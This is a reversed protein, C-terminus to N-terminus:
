GKTDPGGDDANTADSSASSTPAVLAAVAADEESSTDPPNGSDQSSSGRDHRTSGDSPFLGKLFQPTQIDSPKVALVRASVAKFSGSASNILGTAADSSVLDKLFQPTQVDSPKVASVRASVSKLGGSASNILSTAAESSFLDKLFQSNPHRITKRRVRSRLRVQSRRFGLRDRRHRRRPHHVRVQQVDRRRPGDPLPICPLISTRKAKYEAYGLVGVGIILVAIPVRFTDVIGVFRRPISTAPRDRVRLRRLLVPRAPFLRSM